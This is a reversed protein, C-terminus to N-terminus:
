AFFQTGGVGGSGGNGGKGGNASVLIPYNTIECYDGVFLKVQSASERELRLAISGAHGGPTGMTGPMGPM